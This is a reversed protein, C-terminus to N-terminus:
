NGSLYRNYDTLTKISYDRGALSKMIYEMSTVATKVAAIKEVFKNLDNDYEMHANLESLSPKLGQFQTWGFKVLEDKTM